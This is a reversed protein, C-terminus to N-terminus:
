APAQDALLHDIADESTFVAENGSSVATSVGVNRLANMLAVLSSGSQSVVGVPGPALSLPLPAGFTAVGARMNVLGLCNPGVLTAGTARCREALEEQLNLGLPGAEAFGASNVVFARVGIRLGAEVVDVVSSAPVSIAVCDPARPLADLDPYCVADFVRQRQPNVFMLEGLFGLQAMNRVLRQAFPNRDSAGVVAV